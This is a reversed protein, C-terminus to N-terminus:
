SFTCRTSSPLATRLTTSTSGVGEEEIVGRLLEVVIVAGFIFAKCGIAVSLIEGVEDSLRHAEASHIFATTSIRSSLILLKVTVFFIYIAPYTEERQEKLEKQCNM